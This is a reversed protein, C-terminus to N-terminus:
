DNRIDKIRSLISESSVKGQKVYRYIARIHKDMHVFLYKMPSIGLVEGGSKFNHLVDDTTDVDAYDESKRIHEALEEEAMSKLLAQFREENM